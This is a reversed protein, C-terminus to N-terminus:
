ITLNRKLALLLQPNKRIFETLTVLDKGTGFTFTILNYNNHFLVTINNAVKTIDNRISIYNKAEQDLDFLSWLVVKSSSSILYKQVPPIKSCFEKNYLELWEKNNCYSMLVKGRNFLSFSFYNIDAATLQQLIAKNNM